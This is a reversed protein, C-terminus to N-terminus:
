LMVNDPIVISVQAPAAAVGVIAAAFTCVLLALKSFM